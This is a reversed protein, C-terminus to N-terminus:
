LKTTKKLYSKIQIKITLNKNYIILYSENYTGSSVQIEDGDSSADIASQITSYEDPVLLTASYSLSLLLLIYINRINGGLHIYEYLTVVLYSDDWFPAIM